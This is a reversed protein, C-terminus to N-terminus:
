LLTCPKHIYINAFISIQLNRNFSECLLNASIANEVNLIPQMYIKKM